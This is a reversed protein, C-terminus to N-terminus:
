RFMFFPWCVTAPFQGANRATGELCGLFYLLNPFICCPSLQMFYQRWVAIIEYECECSPPLYIWYFSINHFMRSLFHQVFIKINIINSIHYTKAGLFSVVIISLYQLIPSIGYCFFNHFWVVVKKRRKKIEVVTFVLYVFRWLDRGLLFSILSILYNCVTLIPQSQWFLRHCDVCSGVTIFYSVILGTTSKFFSSPHNWTFIGHFFSRKIKSKQSSFDLTNTIKPILIVKFFFKNPPNKVQKNFKTPFKM